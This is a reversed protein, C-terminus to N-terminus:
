FSRRAILQIEFLYPWFKGTVWLRDHASDYAIGNLVDAKVPGRGQGQLLGSLDIWGVVAGSKADIRAIRDTQWINAYIQGKVWELENLRPVPQGEATVSIRRLERLSAPDLVRIEASGDSMFLQRDNRTLGWGEGPYAFRRREAFSNLDFVLGIQSRWTLAILRDQWDIIGEGFLQDPFDQRQLVEGTELRVKRLSSRGELGTSEYLFGDRYFLGETFATPDHPFVHIVAVDYVPIAAAAATACLGALLM